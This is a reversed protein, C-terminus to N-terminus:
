NKADEIADETINGDGDFGSLDMIEAMLTLLEGALLVKEVCDVPDSAGFKKMLERNGFPSDVVAKTVLIAGLKSTDVTETRKSGRGIIITAQEKAENFVKTDIAKITINTNLRKLFVDKKIETEANLLAELLNTM